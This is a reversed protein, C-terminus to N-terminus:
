FSAAIDIHPPTRGSPSIQSCPESFLRACAFTPPDASSVLLHATSILVCSYLPSQSWLSSLTPFGSERYVHTWGLLLPSLRPDTLPAAEYQLFPYSTRCLVFFRGPGPEHEVIKRSQFPQQTSTQSRRHVVALRAKTPTPGRPM